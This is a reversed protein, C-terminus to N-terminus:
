NKTLSVNDICIQGPYYFYSLASPDAITFAVGVTGSVSSASFTHSYDAMNTGISDLASFAATWPSVTLGVKAVIVISAGGASYSFTYSSGPELTVGSETSTPWGLTLAYYIDTTNQLCFGGTATSTTYDAARTGSYTVNWHNSGDCFDGNTILNNPNAICSNTSSTGAQNGQGAVNSNGGQSNSENSGGTSGVPDSGSGGLADTGGSPVTSDFGGSGFAGGMDAALRRASSGGCDTALVASGFTAAVVAYYTSAHRMSGMM